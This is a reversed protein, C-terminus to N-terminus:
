FWRRVRKKYALYVDGFMEALYKEEQAIVGHRILFLAPLSFWVILPEDIATGLGVQMLMMALYLPNRSRAYPGTEILARAEQKPDPSTDAVQYQRIAWMSLAIGAAGILIGLIVQPVGGNWGEARTFTHFATGLVIAGLFILPPQFAIKALRPPPGGFPDHEQTAKRGFMAACDLTRGAATWGKGGAPVRPM